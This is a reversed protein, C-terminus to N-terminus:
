SHCLFVLSVWVFDSFLSYFQTDVFTFYAAAVFFLRSGKQFFLSQINHFPIEPAFAALDIDDGSIASIQHEHLYFVATGHGAAPSGLCYVIVFLLADAFCCLKIQDTMSISFHGASKIHYSHVSLLQLPDSVSKFVAGSVSSGLHVLDSPIRCVSRCHIYFFIFSDSIKSIRCQFFQGTKDMCETGTQSADTLPNVTRHIQAKGSSVILVGNHFIVSTKCLRHSKRHFIDNSRILGMSGIHTHDCFCVSPITNRLGTRICIYISHDGIHRPKHQCGKVCITNGQIKYVRYPFGNSKGMRTPSTRCSM